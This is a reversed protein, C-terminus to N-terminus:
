RLRYEMTFPQRAAFSSLYIQLCRHLDDPHVGESWGNGLEQELTRGTFQLWGDNFFPCLADSGSTGILVPASNAMTRFRLESERLAAESREHELTRAALRERMEGFAGALQAIETIGSNGLRTESRGDTLRRVALSLVALPAMLWGAAVAGITAAICV